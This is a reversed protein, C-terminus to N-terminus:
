KKDEREADNGRDRAGDFHQRRYELPSMGTHSRFQRTFYHHSRFGNREAIEYIKAAPEAQELEDAARNLRYQLLYGVFSYGTYSKVLKSLYSPSINLRDAAEQLSFDPDTYRKEILEVGAVAAPSYSTDRRTRQVLHVALAELQTWDGDFLEWHMRRGAALWEKVVDVIKEAFPPQFSPSCLLLYCLEETRAPILTSIRLGAEVELRACLKRLVERSCSPEDRSDRLPGQVPTPDASSSCWTVLLGPDGSAIELAQLQFEIEENSLEGRLCQYLFRSRHESLNEQLERDSWHALVSRRRNAHIDEAARRVQRSLEEENVPKLLFAFVGLDIARRAYSFRDYGTIVIVALQPNLEKLRRTLELGDMEPMSIDVLLLDPVTLKSEELAEAASAATLLRHEENGIEEAIRSVRQALGRRVKPEDEVLFITM